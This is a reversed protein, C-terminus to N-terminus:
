SYHLYNKVIRTCQVNIKLLAISNKEQGNMTLLIICLAFSSQLQGRM